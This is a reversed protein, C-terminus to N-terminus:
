SLCCPMFSNKLLCCFLLPFSHGSKLWYTFSIPAVFLCVLSWISFLYGLFKQQYISCCESRTIVWWMTALQSCFPVRSGQPCRAQIFDPTWLHPVTFIVAWHSIESLYSVNHHDCGVYENTWPFKMILFMLLPMVPNWIYIVASILSYEFSFSCLRNRWLKSYLLPTLCWWM